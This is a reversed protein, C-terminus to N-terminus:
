AGAQAPTVRTNSSQGTDGSATERKICASNLKLGHWRGVSLRSQVKRAFTEPALPRKAKHRKTNCFWCAAVINDPTDTGGDCRAVLHEATVRLPRIASVKLGYVEAFHSPRQSWMPQCCYYCRGAQATFKVDRIIKIKKM